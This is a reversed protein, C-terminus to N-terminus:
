VRFPYFISYNKETCHKNYVITINKKWLILIKLKKWRLAASRRWDRKAEEQRCASAGILEAALVNYFAQSIKRNPLIRIRVWIEVLLNFM